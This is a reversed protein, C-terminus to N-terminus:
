GETQMSYLQACTYPILYLFTVAENSGWAVSRASAVMVWLSTMGSSLAANPHDTGECIKNEIVPAKYCWVLGLVSWKRACHGSSGTCTADTELALVVIARQPFKLGRYCIMIWMKICRVSSWFYLVIREVLLQYEFIGSVEATSSIVRIGSPRTNTDELKCVSVSIECKTIQIWQAWQAIIIAGLYMFCTFLLQQCLLASLM